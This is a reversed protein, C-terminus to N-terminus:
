LWTIAEYVAWDFFALCVFIAPKHSSIEYYGAVLFNLWVLILSLYVM